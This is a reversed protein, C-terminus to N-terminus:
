RAQDADLSTLLASRAEPSLGRLRDRLGELEAANGRADLTLADAVRRVSSNKLTDRDVYHKATVAFSGHGLASAVAGSTCGASVALSSHLGRLSHPCVKPLQALLCYKRLQRWLWIQYYPRSREGGFILRDSPQGATLSLLLGRLAEPVELRRRANETKGSPIWLM